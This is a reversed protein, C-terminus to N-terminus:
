RHVARWAGRARTCTTSSTSCGFRLASARPRVGLNRSFLPKGLSDPNGDDNADRLDLNEIYDFRNSKLPYFDATYAIIAGPYATVNEIPDHSHMNKIQGHTGPILVPDQADDYIMQTM